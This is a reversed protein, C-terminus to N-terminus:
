KLFGSEALKEYEKLISLSNDNSCDDVIIVEYNTYTSNFISNLCDLIYKESNYTPIIVSIM